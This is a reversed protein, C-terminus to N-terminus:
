EECFSIPIISNKAFCLIIKTRHAQISTPKFINETPIAIREQRQQKPLNKTKVGVKDSNM